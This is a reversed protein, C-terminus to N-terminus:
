WDDCQKNSLTENSHHGSVLGFGIIKPGSPRQDDGAVSGTYLLVFPVYADNCAALKYV